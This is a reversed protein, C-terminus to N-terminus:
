ATIASAILSYTYPLEATLMVDVGDDERNGCDLGDGHRGRRRLSERQHRAGDGHRRKDEEGDGIM